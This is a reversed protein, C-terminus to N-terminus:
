WGDGFGPEPQCGRHAVEEDIFGGSFSPKRQRELRRRYVRHGGTKGMGYLSRNISRTEKDSSGTVRSKERPSPPFAEERFDTTEGTSEIPSGGSHDAASRSNM